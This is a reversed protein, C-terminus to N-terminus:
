AGRPARTIATSNTCQRHFTLMSRACNYTARVTMTLMRIAKVGVAGLLMTDIAPQVYEFLRQGLESRGGAETTLATALVLKLINTEEDDIADAGPMGQQMLGSRHAAEMFRYLKIAYEVVKNVDLVPYMLGMEDEYVRCLRLAEEQPISWIPDKDVHTSQLLQGHLLKPIPSRQPTADATGTGAEGSGSVDEEGQGAIGMSELSTKAVGLNFAVSTPGKYRSQSQSSARPRHFQSPSVPGGPSAQTAGFSDRHNSYQQLSPDIPTGSQQGMTAVPGGVHARLQNLQEYLANMQDQLM